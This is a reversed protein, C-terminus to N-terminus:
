CTACLTLKEVHFRVGGLNVVVIIYLRACILNGPLHFWLVLFFPLEKKPM